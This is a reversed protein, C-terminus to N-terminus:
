PSFVKFSSVGSGTESLESSGGELGLYLATGEGPRMGSSSWVLKEAQRQTVAMTVLSTARTEASSKKDKAEAAPGTSLVEIGSMLLRTETLEGRPKGDSNLIKVTVFVAVKSGAVVHGAVRQPDTLEVTLAIKGDPVTFAQTAGRRVLLARRILEGEKVGSGVVMDPGADEIRSLIGDPVSAAPFKRITAYGDPVLRTVSTGAPIAKAAVVVDVPRQGRLAREDAARVYGYVMLSGLGALAVAVVITILRRNM